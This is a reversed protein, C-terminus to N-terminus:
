CYNKIRENIIENRFNLFNKAYDMNGVITPATFNELEWDNDINALNFALNHPLATCVSSYYKDIIQILLLRLKGKHDTPKLLQNPVWITNACSTYLGAFLHKDDSKKFGILEEGNRSKYDKHDLIHALSYNPPNTRDYKCNRLAFSWLEKPFSNDDIALANEGKATKPNVGFAAVEKTGSHRRIGPFTVPSNQWLYIDAKLGIKNLGETWLTLHKNNEDAVLKVIDPSLIKIHPLLAKALVLLEKDDPIQWQPWNEKKNRKTVTTM